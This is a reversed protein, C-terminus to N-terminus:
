RWCFKRIDRKVVQYMLLIELKKGSYQNCTKSQISENDFYFLLFSSTIQLVFGLILFIKLLNNEGVKFKVWKHAKIYLIRYVAIFCGWLVQGLMYFCGTIPIWNCFGDGFIERLPQPLLFAFAMVALTLGFSLSNLQDIWFLTNIPSNRHDSKVMYTFIIKRLLLGIFVIALYYIGVILKGTYPLNQPFPLSDVIDSFHIVITGKAAKDFNFFIVQSCM